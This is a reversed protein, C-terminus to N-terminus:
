LALAPPEWLPSGPLPAKPGTKRMSTPLFRQPWLHCTILHGSAARRTHLPCPHRPRRSCAIRRRAGPTKPRSDTRRCTWGAVHQAQVISGTPCPGSGAHLTRLSSRGQEKQARPSRSHSLTRAIFSTTARARRISTRALRWLCLSACRRLCLRLCLCLCLCLRRKGERM